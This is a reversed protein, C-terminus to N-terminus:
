AKETIRQLVGNKLYCGSTMMSTLQGNKAHDIEKRGEDDRGNTKIKINNNM